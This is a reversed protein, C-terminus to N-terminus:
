IWERTVHPPYLRQLSRREELLRQQFRQELYRSSTLAASPAVLQARNQQEVSSMQLRSLEQSETLAAAAGLTVVDEIGLNLGTVTEFDDTELVLPKPKAAYLIQIPRGPIMDDGIDVTIGTNGFHTGGGPSIRWRRISQWYQRGDPVQWRAGLVWEADDGVDYTIVPFTTTLETSKVAWVSPFIRQMVQNLSDLVKARPFTPQSVVRSGATHNAPTTNLYGRGWPPITAAGTPSVTDAYILENDIEIIGPSVGTAVGRASTVQFTLDASGMTNQLTTSQEEDLSWSQLLGKTEDIMKSATVAM